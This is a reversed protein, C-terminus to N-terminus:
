RGGGAPDGAAKASLAARAVAVDSFPLRRGGIDQYPEHGKGAVLVVDGPDAAAIADFIATARDRQVRVRAIQSMAVGSQIQAAIADGDEGRPNDDTIVVADAHRVSIKGMMARKGQDREGGAGFVCWLRGACLPRLAELTAALASPTHAFDVVVMPQSDGGLAQMRGAVPSVAGLLEAAEAEAVGHCLLVAFATVLNWVSPRGILASRIVAHSQPTRVDIHVGRATAQVTRAKILAAAATGADDLSFDVVQVNDSLAARMLAAAPDMANIVAARLDARRFLEAKARAYRNMDGHYDLHDRSLNTFVATDIRVGALRRQDLAHSSAEMVTAAAGRARFRALTRHVEICDPTTLGSGLGFQAGPGAGAGDGREGMSAGLTGLVGVPSGRHVQLAQAVYHAVSTKGNTGTIAIVALAHSPRDFFRHAAVGAAHTVDAVAIRLLGHEDVGSTDHGEMVMASAGRAAVEAAFRTADTTAGRRAFFVDGAGVERSDFHLDSVRVDLAAPVQAVGDLLQALSHSALNHQRPMM